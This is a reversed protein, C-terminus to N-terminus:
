KKKHRWWGAGGIAMLGVALALPAVPSGQLEQAIHYGIFSFVTGGVLAAAVRLLGGIM